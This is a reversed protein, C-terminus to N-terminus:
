GCSVSRHHHTAQVHIERLKGDDILKKIQQGKPREFFPITGSCFDTFVYDYGKDRLQREPNQEATSCRSYLIKM